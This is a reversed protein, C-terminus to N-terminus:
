ASKLLLPSVFKYANKIRASDGEQYKRCVQGIEVWLKGYEDLRDFFRDRLKRNHTYNLMSEVHQNKQYVGLIVTDIATWFNTFEQLITDVESLKHVCGSIKTMVNDDEGQRGSEAEPSSSRSRPSLRPPTLPLVAEIIENSKRSSGTNAADTINPLRRQLAAECTYNLKLMLNGNEEMLSKARQRMEAVFGQINKFIQGALEPEGEEVALKLDDIIEALEAATKGLSDMMAGSKQLQMSSVKANLSIAIRFDGSALNYAEEFLDEIQLQLNMLNTLRYVIDGNYQKQLLMPQQESNHDRTDVEMLVGSATRVAKRKKDGSKGVASDSLEKTGHQPSSTQAVVTAKGQFWPHSLCAESSPRGEPHPNMLQKILDKADDSVNGWHSSRAFSIQGSGDNVFEPFIGSLMVYLCAGFSWCDAKVGYGEDAGGMRRKPDVEPAYYEPTGAFTKAYSGSGVTRSLGFDLLKVSGDDTLLINEPKIDRHVIKMSHIYILASLVKSMVPRADEELFKGRSLIEDFLEKGPAYELVLLLREYEGPNHPISGDHKTWFTEVLGVINPHSLSQTIKVERLLREPDFSERLKLPRVDINKVAFTKGDMNRTCRHVTAYAGKGIREHTMYKEQFASTVVGSASVNGASQGSSAFTAM